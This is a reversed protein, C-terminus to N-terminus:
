EVELIDEIFDYVKKVQEKSLKELTECVWQIQEEKTEKHHENVEEVKKNFFESWGKM